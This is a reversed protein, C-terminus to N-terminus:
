GSPCNGLLLGFWGFLYIHDGEQYEGALWTYADKVIEEMNRHLLYSETRCFVKFSVRVM